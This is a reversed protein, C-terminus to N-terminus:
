DLVNVAVLIHINSTVYYIGAGPEVDQSVSGKSRILTTFSEAEHFSSM